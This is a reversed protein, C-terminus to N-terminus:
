FLLYLLQQNGLIETRQTPLGLRTLELLYLLAALPFSIGWCSRDWIRMSVPCSSIVRGAWAVEVCVAEVAKM